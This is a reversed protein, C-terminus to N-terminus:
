IIEWAQFHPNVLVGQDRATTVTIQEAIQQAQDSSDATLLLTWLIRRRVV